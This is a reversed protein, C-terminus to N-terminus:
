GNLFLELPLTAAGLAVADPGLTCLEISTTAFPHRLAHRRAAERIADLYAEGLLLGAWGGLIVREPNLLNILGGVAAGLYGVTEDIIRAGVTGPTGAELIVAALASEQDAATITGGAETYRELVAEAGVYAELCGLSGCRCRRGGVVVPTHGWEGASATSGRDPTGHSIIAAGVGSGILGVVANRVGRGSGFWLEARGMTNAGNDVLLPLGTGARLLRELPVRDWDFTQADVIVEPRQQVVGPVGIGVGLVAEAPVGGDALVADVGALIRSVVADAPHRAPDLPFDAKARETMALDFLEVQVRTEGVDVGVVYGYEPDVQLLVRPRGGDSDVSGVEAVIGEALLERMVNSVSAPSLGTAESLEQRSRPGSFYLARLLAARNDRRLDRVTGRKRDAM